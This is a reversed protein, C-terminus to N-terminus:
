FLNLTDIWLDRAFFFIPKNEFSNLNIPYPTLQLSCIYVAKDFIM